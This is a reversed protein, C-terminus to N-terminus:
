SIQCSILERCTQETCAPSRSIEGGDWDSMKLAVAFHSCTHSLLPHSNFVVPSYFLIECLIGMNFDSSTPNKCKYLQETQDKTIYALLLSINCCSKNNWLSVPKRM